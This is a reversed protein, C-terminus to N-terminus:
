RNAEILRSACKSATECNKVLEKLSDTHGQVTASPLKKYEEVARELATGLRAYHLFVQSSQLRPLEAPEQAAAIVIADLASSM